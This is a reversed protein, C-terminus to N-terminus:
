VYLPSVKAELRSVSIMAESTGSFKQVRWARMFGQRFWVLRKLTDGRAGVSIFHDQSWNIGDLSYKTSIKPSLGNEIRGTTAVLELSDFSAGNGENYLMQTSFEWGIHDGWQTSVYDTLYGISHTKTDSVNWRNYCFVHHIARYRVGGNVSSDLYYWIQEGVAKSAQLDYVMTKDELHIMFHVHGNYIKYECVIYSLQDDTYSSLQQDIESTAIKEFSGNAGAYVSIQENFGGGVFLIVDNVVCSAHTGVAGKNIQAGDIRQFPFYDGGVNNYFEITYRNLAALENRVKNLSLIPDPSAESSGYKLPNISFPNNIDNVIIFEGDTMAFYGDIWVFDIINGLDTDTIQTLNAGDYLFMKGGSNIALYDFSYDLTVTSGAGVNGITAINWYEDISVLDEGMVSYITGNWNISGRCVGNAEAQKIIGDTHRLYGDDIGTKKPIPIM